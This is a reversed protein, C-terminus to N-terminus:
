RDFVLASAHTAWSYRRHIGSLNGAHVQAEAVKDNVTLCGLELLRQFETPEREALAKVDWLRGTRREVLRLTPLGEVDIPEGHEVIAAALEDHLPAMVRRAEAVLRTLEWYRLVKDALM